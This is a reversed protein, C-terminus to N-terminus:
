EAMSRSEPLREAPNSSDPEAPPHPEKLRKRILAIEGDYLEGEGHVKEFTELMEEPTDGYVDETAERWSRWAIVVAVFLAAILIVRGFLTPEPSPVNVGILATWSEFFHGQCLSLHM